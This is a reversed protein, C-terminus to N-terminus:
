EWVTFYMSPSSKKNIKWKAETGWRYLGYHNKENKFLVYADQVRKNIKMTRDENKGFVELWELTVAVDGKLYLNYKKLDFEVWGSEKSITM